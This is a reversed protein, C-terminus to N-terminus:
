AGHQRRKLGYKDSVDIEANAIMKMKRSSVKLVCSADYVDSAFFTGALASGFHTLTPGAEQSASNFGTLGFFPRAPRGRRLPDHRAPFRKNVLRTFPHSFAQFMNWHDCLCDLALHCSLGVRGEEDERLCPEARHFKWSTNICVQRCCRINMM